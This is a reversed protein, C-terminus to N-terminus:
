ASGRGRASPDPRANSAQKLHWRMGHGAEPEDLFRLLVHLHAHMVAQGSAEYCNWGVTYGDPRYRDDLVTRVDQLLTFTASFEEATLDFLTPRHAKPLIIGSGVLAGNEGADSNAFLCLANEHVITSNSRLGDLDCFECTPKAMDIVSPSM